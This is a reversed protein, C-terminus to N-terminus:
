MFFSVANEKMMHLTHGDVRMGFHSCIIGVFLIWTIGLSIGWVKVKGLVIGLAIVIAFMLVSHAVGQGFFLDSLWTM